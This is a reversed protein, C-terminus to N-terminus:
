IAESESRTVEEGESEDGASGSLVTSRREHAALQDSVGLILEGMFGMAVLLLGALIFLAVLTISPRVMAPAALRVYAYWLGLVFGVVLLMGGSSGFFLMPKQAFVLYFKVSILDVLGVIVRGPGGFKSEGYRRPHVQVKVEDVRFGRAAALVVLYRHWDRRWTLSSVVHRRFAKISNLDHVRVGFLIRCLWNYVLSVSAKGYEGEKWGCVIDAGRQISEVLTPVEDPLYQLDAPLLVIVEGRSAEIGTRLAATLGQNYSHSFVRLFSHRDASVRAEHLTADTSGDDVLVVECTFPWSAIQEAILDILLAISGEENYAPIVVSVHM